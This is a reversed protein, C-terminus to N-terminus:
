TIAYKVLLLASAAVIDEEVDIYFMDSACTDDRYQKVSQFSEPNPTMTKLATPDYETVQDQAYFLLATSSVISAKTTTSSGFGATAKTGKAIRIEMPVAFLGAAQALSIGVVPAGPFRGRVEPHNRFKIWSALDMMLRNPVLGSLSEIQAVGDDIQKVPDINAETWKGANATTAATYNGSTTAKTYVRNFRSLSFANLLTRIKSREINERKGAARSVEADDLGVELSKPDCNFSGVSGSFKIRTRGGGIARNADYTIFAQQSDFIQYNGIAAGTIVRPALFDADSLIKEYDQFIGFAYDTLPQNVYAGQPNTAM